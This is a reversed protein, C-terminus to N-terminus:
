ILEDVLGYNQCDKANLYTTAKHLQSWEEPGIRTNEAMLQNWQDEMARLQKIERELESVSGSLECSDEHVMVWADKSMFRVDGSALILVAASAVNGMAVIHITRPSNTIRASIALAAHADGGDSALEVTIPNDGATELKRLQLSFTEYAEFDIAGTIYLVRKSM